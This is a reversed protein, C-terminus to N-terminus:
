GEFKNVFVKIMKSPIRTRRLENMKEEWTINKKMVLRITEGIEWPYIIWKETESMFFDPKFKSWPKYHLTATKFNEIGKQRMLKVTFDLSDGTDSVDDVILVSKNKLLDGNVDQVLMPKKIRTEIDKYYVIRVTYVDKIDFFDSLIRVVCLGGRSIGLLCDPKFGSEKVRKGLEYTLEFIRDPTLFEYESM